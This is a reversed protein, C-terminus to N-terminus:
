DLIMQIIRGLGNKILFNMNMIFLRLYFTSRILLLVKKILEHLQVPFTLFNGQSLFFKMKSNIFIM